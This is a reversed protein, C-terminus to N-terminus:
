HEDPMWSTQEPDAPLGYLTENKHKGQSEALQRSAVMKKIADRARDRGVDPLQVMVAAILARQNLPATAAKVAERITEAIDAEHVYGETEIGFFTCTELEYSNTKHQYSFMASFPKVPAGRVKDAICKVIDSEVDREIRLSLNVAAAIATSGRMMDGPKRCHHIVIIACRCKECLWRLNGMVKAMEASNEDIGASILGLNDLIVVEAQEVEIIQRLVEVSDKDSINLPPNPMSYLAFSDSDEIELHRALAAIREDSEDGGTDFDIFLVKAPVTDKGLLEAPSQPIAPLWVRGTAIKLAMDQLLLTKFSGERAYFISLSPIRILGAVVHKRPPRPQLADKVTRRSELWPHPPEIGTKELFEKEDM